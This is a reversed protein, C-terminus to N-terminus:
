MASPVTVNPALECVGQALNEMSSCNVVTNGKTDLLQGQWDSNNGLQLSMFGFAPQKKNNYIIQTNTSLMTAALGDVKTQATYIGSGSLAVGSSGVILAPPRSSQPFSISEFQHMHGTLVLKIQDALSQSPQAKIADQLMQSICGYQNKSTCGTSTSADYGEIGWIPRHTVLWSPTQAGSALKNVDAMVNQFVAKYPSDDYSDCANASDMVVINLNDFNVQYSPIQVSNAMADKKVDPAPCSIQRDGKILDSHPDLFYFYGPGARSCLEHNGRAIVWPAAQMLQQASKFLDDHWNRWIDPRNANTASQSYFPTGPAQGCHESQGLGDGADYPWQVEQVLQGNSDKQTFYTKGSTGRYNFDGMHLVLDPKQKAGLDAMVKFPMAPSGEFCGGKKGQEKSKCGTDGFVQINEPNSKVMPLAISKNSFQIQYSKDFEILAECVVVSFHNPNNRSVMPISNQQVQKSQKNSSAAVVGPCSYNTDIVTRAIAVNDGSPSQGLIVYSAYQNNTSPISAFVNSNIALLLGFFMLSLPMKSM